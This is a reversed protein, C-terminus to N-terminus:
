RCPFVHAGRGVAVSVATTFRLVDVIVVATSGPALVALDELGWGFRVAFPAQDTFATVKHHHAGNRHAARSGARTPTLRQRAQHHVPRTRGQGKASQGTTARGSGALAGSPHPATLLRVKRTVTRPM